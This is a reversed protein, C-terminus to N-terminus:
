DLHDTVQQKVQLCSILSDRRQKMIRMKKLSNLQNNIRLEQNHKLSHQYQQVHMIIHKMRLKPLVQTRVQQFFHEKLQKKMPGEAYSVHKMVNDNVPDTM